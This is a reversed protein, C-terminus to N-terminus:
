PWIIPPLRLGAYAQRYIQLDSSVLVLIRRSRSSKTGHERREGIKMPVHYWIWRSGLSFARALRPSRDHMACKGGPRESESPVAPSRVMWRGAAPAHLATNRALVFSRSSSLKTLQHPVSLLQFFRMPPCKSTYPEIYTSSSSGLLQYGTQPSGLALLGFIM